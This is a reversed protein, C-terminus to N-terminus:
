PEAQEPTKAPQQKTPNLLRQLEALADILECEDTLACGRKARECLGPLEARLTALQEAERNLRDNDDGLRKNAEVFDPLVADAGRVEDREREAQQLRTELTSDPHKFHEKACQVCFYIGCFLCRCANHMRVVRGCVCTVKTDVGVHLTQVRVMELIADRDEQSAPKEHYNM